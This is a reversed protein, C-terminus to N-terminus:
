HLHRIWLFVATMVGVSIWTSLKLWNPYPDPRQARGDKDFKWPVPKRM